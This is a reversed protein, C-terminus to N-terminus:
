VRPPQFIKQKEFTSFLDKYHFNTNQSEIKILQPVIVTNQFCVYDILINAEITDKHRHKQHDKKHEEAHQKKLCGYHKSIFTSLNDKYKSKHLSYDALIDSVELSIDVYFFMGQLLVISALYTVFIKKM